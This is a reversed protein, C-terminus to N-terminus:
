RLTTEMVEREAKLTKVEELLARLEQVSQSGAVAAAQAGGKPLSAQLEGLPKSLLVM